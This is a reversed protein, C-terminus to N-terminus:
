TTVIMGMLTSTFYLNITISYREVEPVCAMAECQRTIASREAQGMLWRHVAGKNLTIGLLGGKM